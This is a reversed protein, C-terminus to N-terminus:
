DGKNEAQPPSCKRELRLSILVLFLSILASLASIITQELLSRVQLNFVANTAIGLNFGVLIAGVRSGALAFAATRAAVLPPLPNTSATVFVEDSTIKVKPLRKSIISVWITVAVVTFGLTVLNLYTLPIFILRSIGFGALFTLLVIKILDSVKTRNVRLVM